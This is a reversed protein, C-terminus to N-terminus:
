AVASCADGDWEALEAESISDRCVHGETGLLPGILLLLSPCALLASAGVPTVLVM